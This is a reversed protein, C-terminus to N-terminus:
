WHVAFLPEGALERGIATGLLAGALVDSPWHRGLVVRAVGVLAAAAYAEERWRPEASALLAAAAFAIATHGSPFSHRDDDFRPGSWGTVPADPRARGTAVKVAFVAAYTWALAEAARKAEGSEWHRYLAAGALLATGADSIWESATHLAGGEPALSRLGDSIQRDAALAPELLGAAAQELLLLLLLLAAIRRGGRVVGGM